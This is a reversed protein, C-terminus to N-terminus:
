NNNRKFQNHLYLFRYSSKFRSLPLQEPSDFPEEEVDFREVVLM